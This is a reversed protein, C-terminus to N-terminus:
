AHISSLIGIAMSNVAVAPMADITVNGDQIVADVNVNIGEAIRKVVVENNVNVNSEGSSTTRINAIEYDIDIPADTNNVFLVSRYNGMEFHRNTKGALIGIEPSEVIFEASASLINLFEKPTAIPREEGVKLTLKPM